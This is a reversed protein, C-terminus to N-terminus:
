SRSHRGTSPPATAARSRRDTDLDLTEHQRGECLVLGQGDSDTAHRMRSRRQRLDAADLWGAGEQHDVRDFAQWRWGYSNAGAAASSADHTASTPASMLLLAPDGQVPHRVSTRYRHGMGDCRLALGLPESRSRRRPLREAVCDEYRESAAMRSGMLVGFWKDRDERRRAIM